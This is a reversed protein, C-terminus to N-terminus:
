AQGGKQGMEAYGASADGGHEQLPPLCSFPCCLNLTMDCCVLVAYCQARYRAHESTVVHLM